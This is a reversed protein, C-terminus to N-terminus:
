EGFEGGKSTIRRIRSYGKLLCIFFAGSLHALSYSYKSNLKALMAKSPTEYKIHGDMKTVWMGNGVNYQGEYDEPYRYVRYEEGPNLVRGMQVM